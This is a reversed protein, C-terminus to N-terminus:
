KPTLMMVNTQSGDQEIWYLSTADVTMELPTNPAVMVPQAGNLPLRVIGGLVYYLSADDAAMPGSVESASSVPTAALTTVTGGGLPVTLVASVQPEGTLYNYMLQATWFASTSNIVLNAPLGTNWAIGTPTGGSPPESFIEGNHWGSGTSSWYVKGAAAAIGTPGYVASALTSATGGALPVSMVAGLSPQNPPQATWYASTDDLAVWAFGSGTALTTVQGGEVSVSLLQSPFSPSEGNTAIWYVNRGDVAVSGAGKPGSALTIAPGGCRSVKMVAYTDNTSARTWYLNTGDVAISNADVGSALTTLGTSPVCPPAAEPEGTGAEADSSAGSDVPGGSEVGADGPAGSDAGEGADTTSPSALESRGGCGAAAVLVSGVSLALSRLCM